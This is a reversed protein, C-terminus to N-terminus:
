PDAWGFVLGLETCRGRKEQAPYQKGPPSWLSQHQSFPICSNTDGNGATHFIKLMKPTISYGGRNVLQWHSVACSDDRKRYKTNFSLTERSSSQLFATSCLRAEPRTEWSNNFLAM